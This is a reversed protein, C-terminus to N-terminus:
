AGQHAGQGPGEQVLRGGGGGGALDWAHDGRRLDGRPQLRCLGLVGDVPVVDHHLLVGVTHCYHSLLPRGNSSTSTM